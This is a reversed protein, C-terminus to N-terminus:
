PPQSGRLLLQRQPPQRPRALRLTHHRQRGAADGTGGRVSPDAPRGGRQSIGEAAALDTLKDMITHRAGSGRRLLADAPELVRPHEGLARLVAAREAHDLALLGPLRLVLRRAEV